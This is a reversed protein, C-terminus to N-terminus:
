SLLDLRLKFEKKESNLKARYKKWAKLQLPSVLNEMSRIQLDIDAIQEERTKIEADCEVKSYTNKM